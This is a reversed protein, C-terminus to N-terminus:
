LNTSFNGVFALRFELATNRYTAMSIERVFIDDEELFTRTELSFQRQVTYIYMIRTCM